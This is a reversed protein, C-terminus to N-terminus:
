KGHLLFCYNLKSADSPALQPGCLISIHWLTMLIFVRGPRPGPCAELIWFFWFNCGLYDGGAETFVLLFTAGRLYPHLKTGVKGRM